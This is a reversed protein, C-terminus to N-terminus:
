YFAHHCKRNQRELNTAQGNNLARRPSIASLTHERRLLQDGGHAPRDKVTMAARERVIHGAIMQGHMIFQDAAFPGALVRSFDLVKLGALPYDQETM